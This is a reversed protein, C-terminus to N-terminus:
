WQVVANTCVYSYVSHVNLLSYTNGSVNAATANIELVTLNVGRNQQTNDDSRFILTLAEAVDVGLRIRPDSVNGCTVLTERPTIRSKQSLFSVHCKCLLVGRLIIIIISCKVCHMHM